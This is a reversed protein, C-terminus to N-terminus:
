PILEGKVELTKCNELFYYPDEKISNVDLNLMDENSIGEPYYAPNLDYENTHIVTIRAKM